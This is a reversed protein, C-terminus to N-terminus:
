PTLAAPWNVILTIPASTTREEATNVLFHQGDPAVDYFWFPGGPQVDFLPHVTGVEFSSGQGNVSAAMLKNDRSRYFLEKGDRRWRPFVGGTTSVQWKAGTAPFPAVFVQTPGTETSWYAVWRGDPSFQGGGESAATQLFVFPKHDDTGDVPMIWLDQGTTAGFVMYMLFRGDPSWSTAYKDVGDALLVKETGAGSSLKEYLDLHGNRPSNFVRRKGDGSWPAEFQEGAEFTFRRKNGSMVDVTWIARSANGSERVSVSAHMGDPSLFVNDYNASDGVVGTQTGARNFWILRSTTSGAQYALVGSESVAFAGQWATDTQVDDAIPVAVGSLVLQTPDFPQAMLTTGRLFLLHGRAYRADSVGELLRIRAPSDFSGVYVGLARRAATTAGYLFHQGDPLFSPQGHGTEGASRDLATVVTSTGGGASVRSLPSPATTASFLIVDNRSWAGSPLTGEADCLVQAPGGSADIRKLKNDAFFALFRSDPSWFPGQAGATGALPHATLSDLARVWLGNSGNKDAAVFALRRGDPSLALRSGAPGGLNAPLLLTSRYVRPDPVPRRVYRAAPWALGITILLLAGAAMKWLRDRRTRRTPPTAAAHLADSADLSELAFGLDRTSEFREAPNKELCRTVLREVASPIHRDLSCLEPPDKDVTASIVDAATAGTFARQRSLMEYLIAGFSFVDARHDVAQGRLQEPAMYGMTGLVLGPVTDPATTALQSAYAVATDIEALKALGFDLIKLHGDKTIFINEPKLDRHVIGRGHAAALGHAIQVAYEISRRITLGGVRKSAEPLPSGGPSPTDTRRTPGQTLRARLTEGELLESVIYPTGDLTGIDYVALINPHNLAAAARAEREFRHLREPDASLGAPLVKLAVDRGLRADRARYVEGMGGAGLLSVVEYAGLRTGPTLAV